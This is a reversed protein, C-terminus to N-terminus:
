RVIIVERAPPAPRRCEWFWRGWRDRVWVAGPCPPPPRAPGAEVVCGAVNVAFLVCALARLITSM